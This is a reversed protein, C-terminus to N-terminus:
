AVVFKKLTQSREFAEFRKYQAELRMKIDRFEEETAQEMEEIKSACLKQGLSLIKMSEHLKEVKSDDKLFESILQSAKSM